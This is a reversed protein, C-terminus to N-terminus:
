LFVFCVSIDLVAMTATVARGSMANDLSCSGRTKMAAEEIRISHTNRIVAAVEGRDNAELLV